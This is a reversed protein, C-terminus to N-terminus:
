KRLTEKMTKFTEADIEGNIYRENLVEEASKRNPMKFYSNSNNFFLYYVGIGLLIWIIIMM